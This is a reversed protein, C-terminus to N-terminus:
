YVSAHGYAKMGGDLVNQFYVEHTNAKFVITSSNFTVM